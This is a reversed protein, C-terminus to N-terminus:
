IDLVRALEGPFRQVFKHYQGKTLFLRHMAPASRCSAPLAEGKGGHNAARFAPKACRLPAPQRGQDLNQKQDFGCRTITLSELDIELFCRTDGDEMRPM